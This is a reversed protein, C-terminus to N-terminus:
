RKAEWTDGDPFTFVHEPLVGTADAWDVLYQLKAILETVQEQLRLLWSCDAAHGAPEDCFRCEGNHDFPDPPPTM